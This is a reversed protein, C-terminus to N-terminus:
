CTGSPLNPTTDNAPNPDRATSSATARADFETTDMGCTFAIRVTASTGPTLTGATCNVTAASLSCDADTSTTNLTFDGGLPTPNPHEAVLIGQAADPGHNTVTVDYAPNAPDAGPVAVQTVGLDAVGVSVVPSHTQVCTIKRKTRKQKRNGGRQKHRSPRAVAYAQGSYAGDASFAGSADSTAHDVLADNSARRIQVFRNRQCGHAAVIKGSQVPTENLTVVAGVRLRKHNDHQRAMGVAALVLLGCCLAVAILISTRRGDLDNGTM